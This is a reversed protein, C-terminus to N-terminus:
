VGSLYRSSFVKMLNQQLFVLKEFSSNWSISRADTICNKSSASSYCIIISHPAQTIHMNSAAGSYHKRGAINMICNHVLNSPCTYM